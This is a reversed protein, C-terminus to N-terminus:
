HRSFGSIIPIRGAVGPGLQTQAVYGARATSRWTRVVPNNALGESRGINLLGMNSVRWSNWGEIFKRAGVLVEVTSGPENIRDFLSGQLADEVVMAVGATTRRWWAEQVGHTDGIYIVGFYHDSGDAKLGLEGESGRLDCLQLGGVAPM